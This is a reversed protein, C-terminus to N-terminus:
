DDSRAATARTDAPKLEAEIREVYGKLYHGARSGDFNTLIRHGDRAVENAATHFAQLPRDLVAPRFGELTPHGLGYVIAAALATRWM